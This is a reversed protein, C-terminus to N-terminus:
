RGLGQRAALEARVEAVIQDPRRMVVGGDFRLIRWGAESLDAERLLDRRARAQSRHEQGDYHATFRRTTSHLHSAKVM